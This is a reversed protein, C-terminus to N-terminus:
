VGLGLVGFEGDDGEVGAGAMLWFGSRVRVPIEWVWVAIGCLTVIFVWDRMEEEVCLDYLVRGCLCGYVAGWVYSGCVCTVCLGLFLFLSTNLMVMRCGFVAVSLLSGWSCSVGVGRAGGGDVGVM